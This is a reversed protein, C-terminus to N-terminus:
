ENQLFPISVSLIVCEPEGQISVYVPHHVLCTIYESSISSVVRTASFLQGPFAPKDPGVM